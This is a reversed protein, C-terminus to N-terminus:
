PALLMLKALHCCCSEQICFGAGLCLPHPWRRPMLKYELACTLIVMLIAIALFFFAYVLSFFDGGLDRCLPVRNFFWHNEEFSVLTVWQCPQQPFSLGFLYKQFCLKPVLPVLEPSDKHGGCTLGKKRGEAEQKCLTVRM